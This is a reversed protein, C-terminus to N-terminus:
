MLSLRLVNSILSEVIEKEDAGYKKMFMVIPCKCALNLRHLQSRQKVAGMQQNFPPLIPDRLNGDNCRKVIVITNTDGRFM